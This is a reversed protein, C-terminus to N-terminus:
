KSQRWLKKGCLDCKFDEYYGKLFLFNHKKWTGQHEGKTVKCYKLKKHVKYTHKKRDAEVQIRKPTGWNIEELGRM